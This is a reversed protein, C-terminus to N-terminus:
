VCLGRRASVASRGGKGGGGRAEDYTKDALGRAFNCFMLPRPDKKRYYDDVDPPALYKKAITM